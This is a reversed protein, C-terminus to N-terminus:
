RGTNVEIKPLVVNIGGSNSTPQGEVAKPTPANSTGNNHVADEVKKGGAKLDGIVKKAKVELELNGNQTGFTYWGLYWGAGAFIVVVAGVLALLNKMLIGGNWPIEDSRRHVM